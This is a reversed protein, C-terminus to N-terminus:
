IYLHINLNIPVGCYEFFCENEQVNTKLAGTTKITFM